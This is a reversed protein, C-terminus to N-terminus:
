DLVNWLELSLAKMIGAKCSDMVASFCHNSCTKWEKRGLIPSKKQGQAVM